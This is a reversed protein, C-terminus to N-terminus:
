VDRQQFQHFHYDSFSKGAFLGLENLEFCNSLKEVYNNAWPALDDLVPGSTLVTCGDAYIVYKVHPFLPITSMNLITSMSHSLFGRRPVGTSEGSGLATKM